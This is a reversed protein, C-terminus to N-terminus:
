RYFWENELSRLEKHHCRRLKSGTTTSRVWSDEMKKGVIMDEYATGLAQWCKRVHLIRRTRLNYGWRTTCARARTVGNRGVEHRAIEKYNSGRADGRQETIKKISVVDHICCATQFERAFNIRAYINNVLCQLWVSM